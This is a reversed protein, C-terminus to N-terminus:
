TMINLSSSLCFSKKFEMELNAYLKSKRNSESPIPIVFVNVKYVGRSYNELFVM